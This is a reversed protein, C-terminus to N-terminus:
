WQSNWHVSCRDLGLKFTCACCFLLEFLLEFLLPIICSAWSFWLQVVCDDHRSGGGAGGGGRPRGSSPSIFACRYKVLRQHGDVRISRLSSSLLRHHNQPSIPPSPPPTKHRTQPARLLMFVSWRDQSLLHVSLHCTRDLRASGNSSRNASGSRELVAQGCQSVSLASTPPVESHISFQLIVTLTLNVAPDPGADPVRRM